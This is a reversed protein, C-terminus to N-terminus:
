LDSLLTQSVKQELELLRKKDIPEGKARRNELELLEATYGQMEKSQLKRDIESQSNTASAAAITNAQEPRSPFAFFIAALLVLCIGLYAMSSERKNERSVYILAELLTATYGQLSDM